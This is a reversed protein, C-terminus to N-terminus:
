NKQFFPDKMRFVTKIFLAITKLSVKIAKLQRWDM